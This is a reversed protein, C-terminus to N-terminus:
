PPIVLDALRVAMWGGSDRVVVAVQYVGPRPVATDLVVRLSNVSRIAAMRGADGRLAIDRGPLPEGGVLGGKATRVEGHVSFDSRLEDGERTVRLPGPPVGVVIKLRGEEIATQVTFAPHVFAGPMQLAREIDQDSRERDSLEYYGQRHRVVLGPRNVSVSIRRFRGRRGSPRPTYGVLYYDRTDQEARRVGDGLDNSNLFARGGTDSALRTLYDTSASASLATLAIPQGRGGTRTYGRDQAAIVGTTLGRPDIVYFTTQARNARDIVLQLGDAAEPTSLSGVAESVRRRILLTDLGTCSSVSAVVADIAQNAPSIAYGASYLVIQKRGTIPALSQALMALSQSATRSRENSEIVLQRAADLAVDAIRDVRSAHCIKEVRDYVDSPSVQASLTPPLAEIAALVAARDLTFPQLIRVEMGVLAVMVPLDRTEGAKILRLLEDRVRPFAEVPMSLTDIVLALRSRSLRANLTAGGAAIAPAAAPDPAGAGAARPAPLPPGAFRELFQVERPNGDERLQIEAPQLDAVFRGDKDFAVLDLVVLDAGVRFQPTPPPAVAQGLVLLSLLSLLRSM